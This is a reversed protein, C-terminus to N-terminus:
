FKMEFILYPPKKIGNFKLKLRKNGGLHISTFRDIMKKANNELEKDDKKKDKGGKKAADRLMNDLRKNLTAEERRLEDFYRRTMETISLRAEPTKCLECSLTLIRFRQTNSKGFNNLELQFAKIEEDDM